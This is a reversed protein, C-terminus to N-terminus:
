WGWNYMKVPRPVVTDPIPEGNPYHGLYQYDEDCQETHFPNFGKLIWTNGYDRSEWRCEYTPQDTRNDSRIILHSESNDHAWRVLTTRYQPSDNMQCTFTYVGPNAFQNVSQELDKCELEVPDSFSMGSLYFIFCNPDGERCIISSSKDTPAIFMVMGCFVLAGLLLAGVTLPRNLITDIIRTM